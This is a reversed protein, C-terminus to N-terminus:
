TGSDKRSAELRSPENRARLIVRRLDNPLNSEPSSIHLPAIGVRGGSGSGLGATKARGMDGRQSRQGTPRSRVNARRSNRCRRKHNRGASDRLRGGRQILAALADDLVRLGHWKVFACLLDVHDASALERVVENGIRPQERGNVLLASASLPIEPRDPFRVPGPTRDRAAIAHLIDASEPILDAAEPGPSLTAIAQAIRNALLVQELLAMASGAPVSRIAYKALLGLHRALVEHADAIDLPERSVLSADFEGLLRALEETVLQEYVGPKM